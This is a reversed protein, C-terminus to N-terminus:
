LGDATMGEQQELKRMREMEEEYRQKATARLEEQKRYIKMENAWYDDKESDKAEELEDTWRQERLWKDLNPIMKTDKWQESRKHQELAKSMIDCLERNPQLKDWESVANARGVKKPYLEYFRNFWTPKYKAKALYADTGKVTHHLSNDENQETRNIETRNLEIRNHDGSSIVPQSDDGDTVVPFSQDGTTVDQSRKNRNERNKECVEKFKAIGNDIDVKMVSYALFEVGDLNSPETGNLFYAIAAKIARGSSEDSLLQLTNLSQAYLVVGDPREKRKRAM